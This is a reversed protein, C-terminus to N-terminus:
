IPARRVSGHTAEGWRLAELRAHRSREPFESPGILGAVRGLAARLSTARLQRIVGPAESASKPAVDEAGNWRGPSGYSPWNRGMASGSM